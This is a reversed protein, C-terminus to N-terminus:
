GKITEYAERARRLNENMVKPPIFYADDDEEGLTSCFYVTEDYEVEIDKIITKARETKIIAEHKKCMPCLEAMQIVTWEQEVGRAIGAIM